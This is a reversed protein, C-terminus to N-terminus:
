NLVGAEKEGTNRQPSYRSLQDPRETPEKDAQGEHGLPQYRTFLLFCGNVHM